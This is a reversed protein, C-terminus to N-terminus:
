IAGDTGTVAADRVTDVTVNIASPLALNGLTVPMARPDNLGTATIAGGTAITLVGSGTQINSSNGSYAGGQGEFALSGVTENFGSLYWMAGGRVKVMATDAIQGPRVNYVMSNGYNLMDIGQYNGGTLVLDGPIANFPANLSTIVGNVYTTGTFTNGPGASLPLPMFAKLASITGSATATGSLLVTTPSLVSLITTSAPINAGALTMGAALNATSSVTLINSGSASSGGTVSQSSSGTANNSLTLTTGSINLITTGEPIFPASVYMGITLGAASSVTMQNSGLTVTGGTTTINGGQLYIAGGALFGASDLVLSKGVGTIQSNITLTNASPNHLFLETTGSTLKGPISTSGINKSGSVGALIGGSDVVLTDNASAFNLTFGSTKSMTLSNVTAGGLPVTDAGGLALNSTQTSSLFSNTMMASSLMRVGSAQDYTAFGYNITTAGAYGDAGGVTAWGGILGNVLSPAATFKFNPNDGPSGSAALFNVTAGTSRSQIGGLNMTATGIGSNGVNIRLVGAGGALALSGVSIAGDSGSRSIYSFAGGDLTITGSSLRNSLAQIGSDDWVLISNNM